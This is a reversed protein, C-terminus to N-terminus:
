EDCFDEKIVEHTLNLAEMFVDDITFDIEYPFEDEDDYVDDLDASIVAAIFKCVLYFSEEAHTFINAITEPNRKNDPIVEGIRDGDYFIEIKAM